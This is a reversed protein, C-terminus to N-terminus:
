PVTESQSPWSCYGLMYDGETELHVTIDAHYQGHPKTPELYYIQIVPFSSSGVVNVRTITRDVKSFSGHRPRLNMQLLDSNPETTLVMAADTTDMPSIFRELVLCRRIVASKAEFVSQGEWPMSLLQWCPSLKDHSDDRMMFDKKLVEVRSTIYQWKCDIRNFTMTGRIKKHERIPLKIKKHSSSESSCDTIAELSECILELKIVNWESESVKVDRVEYATSNSGDGEPVYVVTKDGEDHLTLSNAVGGPNLKNDESVQWVAVKARNVGENSGTWTKEFFSQLKIKQPIADPGGAVPGLLLLVLFAVVVLFHCCKNIPPHRVALRSSFVEEALRDM